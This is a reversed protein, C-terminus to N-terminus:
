KALRESTPDNELARRSERFIYMVLTAFPLEQELAEQVAFFRAPDANRVRPALDSWLKLLESKSHPLAEEFRKLPDGPM